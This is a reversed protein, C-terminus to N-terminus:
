SMFLAKCQQMTEDPTTVTHGITIESVYIEYDNGGEYTKDGFFHIENFDKLYQLCYTKDWGKPFVDFSIQGGISFTLNLHSFKQRLEAVMKPRINHIKDYKEFEDREEQSCNRGIPSVNLMGNRFEIFTGRKIPIDLDAIYHLTYNIFEKLKDEGLFQKLDEKGILKGDKQAVLGNESFVYDYDHIVSKGLQESIKSLDSGGVVGVTVVKRLDRMFELMEGTAAKRPATLTGDVDFLAIVGPMRAAM